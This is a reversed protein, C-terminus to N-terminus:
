TITISLLIPVPSFLLNGHYLIDLVLEISIILESCSMVGFASIKHILCFSCIFLLIVQNGKNM